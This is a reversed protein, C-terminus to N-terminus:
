ISKDQGLEEESLQPETELGHHSELEVVDASSFESFEEAQAAEAVITEGELTADAAAAEPESPIQLEGTLKAALAEDYKKLWRIDKEPIVEGTVASLALAERISTARELDREDKQRQKEKEFFESTTDIEALQSQIKELEEEGQSYSNETFSAAMSDTIQSLKPKEAEDEDMGPPLLEDIQSLTPLEKLNRLGFIELFKKTTGYFMPRGPLESKGEFQVLGREMLARLLHGSEVGRIQDIENKILPQKYATIALVELAPGSLKFPRAKVTRRLFDVNDLKTRLQYGGTVEDLSIGRKAGAYEVALKDLTRRIKDTTVETGKFAMKLSNLSIPRDTSFLISEIISEVKEDEIFDLQEIEASEFGSLETNELEEAAVAPEEIGEINEADEVFELDLEGSEADFTEAAVEENIEMEAEVESDIQAAESQAALLAEEEAIEADSQAEALETATPQEESPESIPEEAEAAETAEITATSQTEETTEIEEVSQAEISQAEIPQEAVSDEIQQVAEATVSAEDAVATEAAPGNKFAWSSQAALAALHGINENPANQDSSPFLQKKFKKKSM